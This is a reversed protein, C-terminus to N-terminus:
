CGSPAAQSPITGGAHPGRRGCVSLPPATQCLGAGWLDCPIDGCAAWMGCAEGLPAAQASLAREKILQHTLMGAAGLLWVVKLVHLLPVSTQAAPAPSTPADMLPAEGGGPHGPAHPAVTEPTAAQVRPIGSQRHVVQITQEPLAVVIPARGGPIPFFIGALLVLSLLYWLRKKWRASFRRDWFPSLLTLILTLAGVILSTRLLNLFLLDSM